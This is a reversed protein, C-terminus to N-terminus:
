GQVIIPAALVKQAVKQAKDQAYDSVLQHTSYWTIANYLDWRTINLDDRLNTLAFAIKESHKKGLQKLVELAINWEISDKMAESIYQKLQKDSDFLTQLFEVVTSKVDIEGIHMRNISVEQKLVQGLFMGNSCATRYGFAELRFGTYKDYSNVLRVGLKVGDIVDRDGFATEVYIRNGYNQVTGFISINYKNLVSTYADIIPKHQVLTYDKSVTKVQQKQEMNFIMKEQENEVWQQTIPNLFQVRTSVAPDLRRGLQQLNTTGNFKIVERM